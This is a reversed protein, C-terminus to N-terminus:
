VIWGLERAKDNANTFPLAIVIEDDSAEVQLRGWADIM